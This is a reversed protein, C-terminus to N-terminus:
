GHLKSVNQKEDKCFFNFFTRAFFFQKSFTGPGVEFKIQCIIRWKATASQAVKAMHCQRPM